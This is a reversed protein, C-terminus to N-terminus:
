TLVREAAHHGLARSGLLGQMYQYDDSLVMQKSQTRNFNRRLAGM